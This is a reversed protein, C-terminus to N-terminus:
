ENKVETRTKIESRFWEIVHYRVEKDYDYWEYGDVFAIPKTFSEIRHNIRKSLRLHNGRSKNGKFLLNANM